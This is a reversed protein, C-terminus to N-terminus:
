DGCHCGEEVSKWIKEKEVGGISRIGVDDGSAAYLTADDDGDFTLYSGSAGGIAVYVCDGNLMKISNDGELTIFLPIYTRLAYRYNETVVSDLAPAMMELQYNHLTLYGEKEYYAYGGQKPKERTM